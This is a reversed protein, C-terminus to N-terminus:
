ATRPRAPLALGPAHLAHEVPQLGLALGLHQHVVRQGLVDAREFRTLSAMAAPGAAASPAARAARRPGARAGTRAPAAVRSVAWARSLRNCEACRTSPMTLPKFAGIPRGFAPLRQVRSAMLQALLTKRRGMQPPRPPAGLGGHGWGPGGWLPLPYHLNFLASVYRTVCFAPSCAGPRPSIARAPRRLWSCVQRAKAPKSPTGVRGAKCLGSLALSRSVRRRPRAQRRGHDIAQISLGLHDLVTAWPQSCSPVMGSCADAFHCAQPL